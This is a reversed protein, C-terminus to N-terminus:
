HKVDDPPRNLAVMKRRRRCTDDHCQGAAAIRDRQRVEKMGKVFGALQRYGTERVEIVLQAGVGIAVLSEGRGDGFHEAMRKKDLAFVDPGSRGSFPPRDLVRSAFRAIFEEGSRAGPKGGFRHCQAMCAVILGFCKQKPKQATGPGSSQRRHM